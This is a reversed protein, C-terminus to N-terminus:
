STVTCYASNRRLASDGSSYAARSGLMVSRASSYLISGSIMKASCRGIIRDTIGGSAATSSSSSPSIDSSSLSLFLPPPSPPALSAAAAAASSSSSPSSFFDSSISTSSPSTFSSSPTFVVVVVAAAPVQSARTFSVTTKAGWPPKEPMDCVNNTM